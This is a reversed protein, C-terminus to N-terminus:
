NIAPYGFGQDIMVAHDLLYAGVDRSAFVRQLVHIAEIVLRNGTAHTARCGVGDFCHRRQLPSCRSIPLPL